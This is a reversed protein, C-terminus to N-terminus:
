GMIDRTKSTILYQIAISLNDINDKFGGLGRNCNTCLVGRVKGTNHCHDIHINKQNSKTFDFPVSCIACRYNQSQLIDLYKEMSLGYKAKMWQIRLKTIGFPNPVSSVNRYYDKGYKKKYDEDHHEIAYGRMCSRCWSRLGCAVSKDVGFEKCDKEQKCKTCLKRGSSIDIIKRGM